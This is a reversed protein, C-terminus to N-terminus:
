AITRTTGRTSRSSNMLTPTIRDHAAAPTSSARISSSAARKSASCGPASTSPM